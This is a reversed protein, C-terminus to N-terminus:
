NNSGGSLGTQINNIDEVIWGDPIGSTGTPLTTMQPHKVFTGTSSVNYVWSNLCNSASIDTALMKIYNLKSCGKFMSKYCGIALTTAPLEPATTLSTCNSLMSEYCNDALTTAPLEPATALSTCGAFMYRYCYLALTTAPLEPATTLSTCGYFMSEYCRVALTTAPLEPATTLSTCGNFMYSYCDGALTTAPLILNEASQLTTCNYFLRYFVYNKGSLDNQGEFSDGCLLSMINGKINCKKSITFTGIGHGSNPTLNGKFSLTQGKNISPTNSDASLNNWSGDDIRYKCANTSLSATLSDELAEITFYPESNEEVNNVVTWGNPIGSVGSPLTTMDPHKVFTGSSPVGYVWYYLCNSASINTALMKIYNLKSCGKFMDQYCKSALIEAPLEPAEALRYCDYFMNYYCSYALTTAPLQPATTLSTCGYFMDSYCYDALTTAPLQPATTLSTCGEFMSDYCYKALTTAPLYYKGNSNKPLIRNLDTDTVETGAFLGRLGGSQVVSISNFNINSCDPLVNTNYFMHWYCNDKLNTAPLEPAATLRTCGYFMSYYCDRTLSTAPLEPATTLRTCGEFMYYYCREALTTAPLQPATTLGTCGRFMSAYCYYALTTAPLEPAATLRTCGYFMSEYCNNALTTAPLQPATTLSTCGEFMSDYCYKALTTAPLVLESADVINTCNNFLNYFVYDKGTLSTQGEFNDGYLLSMINGKVNCKKTITFTGIGYSASIGPNNIKFSIRQGKSLSPSTTGSALSVWDGGNISYQSANQSLSVTLGDELAEISFYSNKEKNINNIFRRRM